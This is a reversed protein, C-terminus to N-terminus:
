KSVGFRLPFEILLYMIRVAELINAEDWQIRIVIKAM